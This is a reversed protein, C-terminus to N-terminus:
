RSSGRYLEALYHYVTQYLLEVRIKLNLTCAAYNTITTM